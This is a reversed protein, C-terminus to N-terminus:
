FVPFLSLLCPFLTILFIILIQGPWLPTILWEILFPLFIYMGAYVGIALITGYLRGFRTRGSDAKVFFPELLDLVFVSMASGAGWPDDFFIAAAIGSLFVIGAALRGAPANEDSRFRCILVACLIGAAVGALADVASQLGGAIRWVAATLIGAACLIRIPRKGSLLAFACLVAATAQMHLCPFAYGGEAMFPATEPHIAWPRPVMFLAKLLTNLSVAASLSLLMTKGRKRDYVMFVAACVSALVCPLTAYHFLLFVTGIFREQM